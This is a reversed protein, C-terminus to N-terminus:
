EDTAHGVTGDIVLGGDVVIEQGTIYRSATSALFVVVDAIDDERGIRGLPIRREYTARVEPTYARQNLPTDIAGPAVANVTVDYPAAEVALTRTLGVVGGKATIYASLNAIALIDAASSVNIIRGRRQGYMVLLAARCGYFYGHLNAAMLGHWDDNSTEGIPKVMLRAANNVWIDLSGWRGTAEQALRDATAPDGADAEIIISERGAAAIEGEVRASGDPDNLYIGAVNAGANALAVAIARGIGQSVGTVVASAGVLEFTATM